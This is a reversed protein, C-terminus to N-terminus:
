GGVNVLEPGKTLFPTDGWFITLLLKCYLVYGYEVKLPSIYIHINKVIGSKRDLTM